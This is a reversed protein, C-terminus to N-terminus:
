LDHNIQRQVHSEEHNLHAQQGRTLFGGNRRFDRQEQRRISRDESKLQGFHGNLHGYDRNLEGNIRSDRGLVEARRPHCGWAFSPLTTLVTLALAAFAAVKPTTVKFM